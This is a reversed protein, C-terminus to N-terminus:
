LWVCPQRAAAYATRDAAGPRQRHISGILARLATESVGDRAMLQRVAGDALVEDLSPECLRQM